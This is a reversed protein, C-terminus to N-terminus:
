TGGRRGGGFGASSGAAWAGTAGDMGSIAGAGAGVDRGVWSSRAASSASSLGEAEPCSALLGTSLGRGSFHSGWNRGGVVGGRLAGARGAAEDDRERTGSMAATAIPPMTRAVTAAHYKKRRM